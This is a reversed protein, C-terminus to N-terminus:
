PLQLAWRSGVCVTCGSLFWAFEVCFSPPNSGLVKSHPLLALWQRM